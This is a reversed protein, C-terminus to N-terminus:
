INSPSHREESPPKERQRKRELAEALERKVSELNTRTYYQTTQTSSHGLLLSLSSLSIGDRLKITAFTHRLQHITISEKEDVFLEPYRSRAKDVYREFHHRITTYNMAKGHRGGKNVDGSFLSDGEDLTKLVEQFLAVSRSGDILPIRRKKNGKDVAQLYGGDVHNIHVDQIQLKLAEGIRIGTEYLLTLLLRNRLDQQPIVDLIAEVQKETLLRPVRMHFPIAELKATPDVPLLGQEYAWNFCSHLTAKRHVLTNTKLDNKEDLYLRLHSETINHILLDPYSQAFTTLEYRYVRLTHSAFTHQKATLFAEVLENCSMYEGHIWIIGSSGFMISEEAGKQLLSTM